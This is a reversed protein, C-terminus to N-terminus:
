KYMVENIARVISMHKDAYVKTDHTSNYNGGAATKGCILDPMEKM